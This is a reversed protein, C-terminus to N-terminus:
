KMAEAIKKVDEDLNYRRYHAYVWADRERQRQNNADEYTKDWQAKGAYPHEHEILVDKLYTIRGLRRGVDTWYNDSYCHVLGPPVFHGVAKIAKASVFPLAALREGNFGDNGYVVVAGAQFAKVVESEWNPSKFVMDDSGMMVADHHCGLENTIIGISGTVYNMTPAHRIRPISVRGVLQHSFYEDPYIQDDYDQVIQICSNSPNSALFGDLMRKCREPRGRSPVVILINLEAGGEM